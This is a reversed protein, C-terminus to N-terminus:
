KKILRPGQEEKVETKETEDVNSQLLESRLNELAQKKEITSLEKTTQTTQEEVQEEEKTESLNVDTGPNNKLTNIFTEVDGYEKKGAKLISGWADMVKSKQEEVTLKSYPGTVKIIVIEDNSKDFDYYITSVGEENTFKISTAKEFRIKNKIPVLFANLGTPNKQYEEKEYESMEELADMIRLQDLVMPRANNYEMTRQLVQAVNYFPILM